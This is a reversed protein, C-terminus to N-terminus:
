GARLVSERARAKAGRGSLKAGAGSWGHKGANAQSAAAEVEELRVSGLLRTASRGERIDAGADEDPSLLLGRAFELAADAAAGAAFSCISSTTLRCVM